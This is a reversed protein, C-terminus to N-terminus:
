CTTLLKYKQLDYMIVGYLVCVCTASFLKALLLFLWLASVPVRAHRLLPDMRSSSHYERAERPFSLFSAVRIRHFLSPQNVRSGTECSMCVERVALKAVPDERVGPGDHMYRTARSPARKFKLSSGDHRKKM